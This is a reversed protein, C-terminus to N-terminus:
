NEGKNMSENHLSSWRRHGLLRRSLVDLRLVLLSTELESRLM